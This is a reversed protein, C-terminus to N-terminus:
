LSPTRYDAFIGCGLMGQLLGAILSRFEVSHIAEDSAESPQPVPSYHGVTIDCVAMHPRHTNNWRKRILQWWQKTNLRLLNTQYSSPLYFKM